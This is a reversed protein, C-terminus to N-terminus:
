SGAVISDCGLRIEDAHTLHADAIGRCRRSQGSSQEAAAALRPDAAAGPDVVVPEPALSRHDVLRKGPVCSEQAIGQQSSGRQAPALKRGNKTCCQGRAMMANRDHEVAEDRGGRHSRELQHMWASEIMYQRAM